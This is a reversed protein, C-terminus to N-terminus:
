KRQERANAHFSDLETINGMSSGIAELEVQWSAAADAAEFGEPVIRLDSQAVSQLHSGRIAGDGSGVAACEALIFINGM